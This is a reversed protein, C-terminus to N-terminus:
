LKAPAVGVFDRVPKQGRIWFVTGNERAFWFASSSGGDLNMARVIKYNAAVPAAALISALDALSVPSCVGLLGHDNGAIAAFTRRAIQSDDLGNIRKSGEVLFPGAQIAAAIKKSRSFENVRVIEVGRSSQALVGTILRARRLPSFTRGDSVRLGIPKFDTDFYGGNVGYACKEAEMMTSLNEGGPNDIVKLVCSKSSFIAVDLDARQGAAAEEVVLHRHEIGALGPESEGSAVKWDAHVSAVNALLLLTWIDRRIRM